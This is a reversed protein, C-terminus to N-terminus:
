VSCSPIIVEVVYEQTTQNFGLIKSGAINTTIDSSESFQFTGSYKMPGDVFTAVNTDTDISGFLSFVNSSVFNAVNSCTPDTFDAEFKGNQSMELKWCGNAAAFYYSTGMVEEISCASSVTPATSPVLSPMPSPVTSPASCSPIIVEVVYEQTTQNFGLIKSGAINTTIDSSESFQFTGSYKMPGDVFTAVNTDTDISGFLSFVNSSVFNAVNSCTPDTFDAEFKGNQSMELKWCGNAAAFYYSTGMVEEISCASSVTPATSPVLSPIWSPVMSASVTPSSSPDTSPVMSLSPESSPVFTPSVSPVTSPPSSASESPASSTSPASSPSSSPVMSPVGPVVVEGFMENVDILYSSDFKQLNPCVENMNSEDIGLFAAIGRFPAEWPTTPIMRGIFISFCINISTITQYSQCSIFILEGM